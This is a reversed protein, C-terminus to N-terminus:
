KEKGSEFPGCARLIADYLHEECKYRRCYGVRGGGCVFNKFKLEEKIEAICKETPPPVDRRIVNEVLFEENENM